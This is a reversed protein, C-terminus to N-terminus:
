KMEWVTERVGEGAWVSEGEGENGRGYERVGEGSICRRERERM